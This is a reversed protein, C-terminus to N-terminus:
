LKQKENEVFELFILLPKPFWQCLGFLGNGTIHCCHSGARTEASILMSGEGGSARERPTFRPDCLFDDEASLAFTPIRIKSLRDQYNLSIDQWFERRGKFGYQPAYIQDHITLMGEWNNKLTSKIREYEEHSMYKKMSHLQDALLRNLNWSIVKYYIRRKRIFFWAGEICNWPVSYLIVANLPTGEGVRSLYNGLLCAGLSVGYAYYSRNSQTKVYKSKIHDIIDKVDEWSASCNYKASTVPLGPAGRMLAVACSYKGGTAFILSRTYSNDNGLTLGPFCLLIPKSSELDPKKDVWDVGLTGGDRAKLLERVYTSRHLFRDFAELVLYIFGQLGPSLALISPTYVLDQIKSQHLFKSFLGNSKDFYFRMKSSQWLAVARLTFLACILLGYRTFLKERVGAVFFKRLLIVIGREKYDAM